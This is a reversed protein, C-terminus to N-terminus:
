HHGRPQLEGIWGLDRLLYKGVSIEELEEIEGEVHIQLLRSHEVEGFSGCPTRGEAPLHDVGNLAFLYEILNPLFCQSAKVVLVIADKIEDEQASESSREELIAIISDRRGQPLLDSLGVL